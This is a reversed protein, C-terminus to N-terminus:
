LVCQIILIYKNLFYILKFKIKAQRYKLLLFFVLAMVMIAQTLITAIATTEAAKQALALSDGVFDAIYQIEPRQYYHALIVANKEKRLTNIAEIYDIKTDLSIDLYGKDELNEIAKSLKM